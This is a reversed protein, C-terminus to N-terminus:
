RAPISNTRLALSPKLGGLTHAGEGSVLDACKEVGERRQELKFIDSGREDSPPKHLVMRQMVTGEALHHSGHRARPFLLQQGVQVCLWQDRRSRADRVEIGEIQM